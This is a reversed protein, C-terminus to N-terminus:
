KLTVSYSTTSYKNDISDIGKTYSEVFNYLKEIYKALGNLDTIYENIKKDFTDHSTGQWYNGIATVTNKLDNIKTYLDELENDLNKNYSRMNETKIVITNM